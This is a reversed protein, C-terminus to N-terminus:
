NPTTQGVRSQLDEGGKVFPSALLVGFPQNFFAPDTNVGIANRPNEIWLSEM